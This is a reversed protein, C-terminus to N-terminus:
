DAAPAMSPIAGIQQLLGLVDAESWAEVAMGNEFRIMSLGTISVHNGTPAIGMLAGRHTGTASLRTVVKDGEAVQDEVVIHVDPFATRYAQIGQKYPELGVTEGGPLSPDHVVLGPAALEDLAELRGQNWAQEVIIKRIRAKNQESM